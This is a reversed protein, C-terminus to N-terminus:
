LIGGLGGTNRWGVSYCLDRKIFGREIVITHRQKERIQDRYKTKKFARNSTIGWIVAVDCDEYETAVFYDANIYALGQIFAEITNKVREDTSYGKFVGIRM